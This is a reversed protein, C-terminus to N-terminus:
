GAVAASEADPELLREYIRYRKVWTGGMAEFAKVMPENTELVWGIEGGKQPRREAVDFHEAYLGAAVGTHQFEPKVGLFGVRVRDVRRLARLARLWGLPLLRGGIAKLVQNFDPVTLAAGAVRGDSTEAVMMWNEDLLPRNQRAEHELDRARLPVFGWNTSWASNYVEVFRRIEAGLDSKRMHRIRIGHEPELKEALEFIIPLVRSRDTVWLKGM